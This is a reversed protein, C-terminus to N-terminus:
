DPWRIDVSWLRDIISAKFASINSTQRVELPLRNWLLMTRYFFGKRFSDCTPVISCNYTSIDTFDIIAATRRTYRVQDAETPSIYDPLNIPVLSNVIKYFMVIDRLIFRLRVPLIGYEKQKALFTDASYHDFRQHGAIFKVGRKQVAEFPVLDSEYQPGWIVSCHEFMSAILSGLYSTM